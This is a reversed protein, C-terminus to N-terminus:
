SAGHAALLADADAYGSPYPVGVVSAGAALLAAISATSQEDVWYSDVCARVALMLPSRGRGDRVNVDAGRAILLAVLAHRARWAAVHLATAHPARDHYGDGQPEAVDVPIGLDLLLTIGAVNGVGAYRVMLMPAHERLTDILTPALQLITAVHEADGHAIAGIVGDIQNWQTIFDRRSFSDLLDDRGAWAAMVFPTMGYEPVTPDAGHDLLLEVIAARNDSRIAHALPSRGWRSVGSATAGFELALKMGDLDHWDSKRLLMTALSAATMRRTELLARFAGLEYGEPAHYPTEEDNPDAGRALLLRTLAEHHAVGAAGYLVSEREPAPQHDTEFFGTNPDAGADLLAQAARVFGESRSPDLRLYRSFCLHTLADWGYPATTATSLSADHQLCRVVTTDDGLIAAVHIDLTALEPHAALLANAEALTGSAHGADRPASAARIFDARVDSM